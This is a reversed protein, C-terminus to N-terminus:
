VYFNLQSRKIAWPTNGMTAYRLSSDKTIVKRVGVFIPQLIYEITRLGAFFESFYINDAFNVGPACPKTLRYFTRFRWIARRRQKAGLGCQPVKCREGSGRAPPSPFMGDM